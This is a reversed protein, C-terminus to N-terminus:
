RVCAVLGACAGRRTAGLDHGVTRATCDHRRAQQARRATRGREAQRRRGSTPEGRGRSPRLARRFFFILPFFNSFCDFTGKWQKAVQVAKANTKKLQQDLLTAKAEAQAVATQQAAKLARLEGRAKAADREAARLQATLKRVDSVPASPVPAPAPASKPATNM